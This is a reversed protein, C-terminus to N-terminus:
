RSGKLHTSPFYHPSLSLTHCDCPFFPLRLYEVMKIDLYCVQLIKAVQMKDEEFIINASCQNAVYHCADAKNTAYIGCGVGGAQLNVVHLLM